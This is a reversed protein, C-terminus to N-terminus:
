QTYDNGDGAINDDHNTLQNLFCRGIPVCDGDDDGNGVDDGDDNSSDDNDHDDDDDSPNDDNHLLVQGAAKSVPKQKLRTIFVMVMMVTMMM